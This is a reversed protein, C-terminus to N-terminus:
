PKPATAIELHLLSQAARIAADDHPDDLMRLLHQKAETLGAEGAFVAAYTRVASDESKLNQLLAKKGDEDGLAALAHECFCRALPDKTSQARKKINPVDTSDGIRALVWAAIRFTDPDDALLQSRLFKMAQADKHKGLAAAAMIRLAPKNESGEMAAKLAKGDGILGVKYMSEAAHVHGYPDQGNIIELLVHKAEKHGARILERALGCRHQDDKETKLKEQLPAILSEGHGAVSLAEAAHMSPWFAEGAFGLRLVRVAKTREGDTLRLADNGCLTSTWVVIALTLTAAIPAQKLTRRIM